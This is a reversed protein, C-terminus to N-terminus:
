RARRWRPDALLDRLAMAGRLEEALTLPETRAKAALEAVTEVAADQRRKVAEKLATLGGHYACPGAGPTDTGAGAWAQCPRGNRRPRGCRELPPKPAVPPRAAARAARDATNWRDRLAYEFPRIRWIDGILTISRATRLRAALRDPDLKDADRGAWVTVDGDASEVITGPAPGTDDQPWCRTIRPRQPLRISGAPKPNRPESTRPVNPSNM